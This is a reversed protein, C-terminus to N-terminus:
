VLARPYADPANPDYPGDSLGIIRLDAAGENVIAHAALPPIELLVAGMGAFRRRQPATEPGDDWYLSWADDHLVILIERREVHYHNGRVHGPRLTTLHADLPVGLFTRWRDPIAFSAGREDGRDDLRTVTVM